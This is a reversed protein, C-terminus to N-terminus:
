AAKGGGPDHTVAAYRDLVIWHRASGITLRGLEAPLGLLDALPAECRLVGYRSRVFAESPMVGRAALAREVAQLFQVQTCVRVQMIPERVQVGEILRACPPAVELTEGYAARLANVPPALAEENRALVHLGRRSSALAFNGDGPVRQCAENAFGLQFRTDRRRVLQEVPMDLHATNSERAPLRGVLPHGEPM